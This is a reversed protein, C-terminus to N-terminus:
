FLAFSYYPNPAPLTLHTYLRLPPSHLLSTPTFTLHTFSHVSHSISSARSPPPFFTGHGTWFRPSQGKLYINSSVVGNLNGWGVVMGVVLGRKLNGETNNSSWTLSNPITPYIGAAGFFTGVYQVNRNHSSILMLFGIIGVTVTAMNCYGRKKTRDAIVGVGVTCVAAVAYPPVSLLQAKTGKHGMGAIITPLFLSFSYLPVLTGMYIFMFGYTKWDKLGAYIHRKDYEEATKQQKDMIIRRRMRIRDNPSLFRADDPWDFVMWWCFLGVFCTAIGLLTHSVHVFRNQLTM